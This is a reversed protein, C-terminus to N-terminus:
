DLTSASAIGSALPDIVRGTYTYIRIPKGASLSGAFSLTDNTRGLRAESRARDAVKWADAESYGAALAAKLAADSRQQIVTAARDLGPYAASM